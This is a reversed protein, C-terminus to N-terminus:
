KKFLSYCCSCIILLVFIIILWIWLKNDRYFDPTTCYKDACVSTPASCDKNEKCSNLKGCKYVYRMVGYGEDMDFTKPETHPLYELRAETLITNAPCEIDQRDLHPPANAANWASTKTVIDKLKIDGCKYKYNMKDNVFELKLDTLPKDKCSIDHKTLDQVVASPGLETKFESIPGVDVNKSCKYIYKVNIRPPDRVLRLQNIGQNKCDIDLNSINKLTKDKFDIYDTSKDELQFNNENTDAGFMQTVDLYNKEFSTM